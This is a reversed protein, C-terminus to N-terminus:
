KVFFTITLSYKQQKKTNKTFHVVLFLSSYEKIEYILKIFKYFKLQSEFNIVKTVLANSRKYSPHDLFFNVRCIFFYKNVISVLYLHSDLSM